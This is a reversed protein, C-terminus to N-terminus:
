KFIKGLLAFSKTFSKASPKAICEDINSQGEYKRRM